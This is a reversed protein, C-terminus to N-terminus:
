REKTSPQLFYVVEGQRSFNQERAWKEQGEPSRLQRIREQIQQNNEKEALTQQQLDTLHLRAQSISQWMFLGHGLVYIGAFLLCCTGIMLPREQKWLALLHADM